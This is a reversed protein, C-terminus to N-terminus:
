AEIALLHKPEGGITLAAQHDDETLNKQDAQSILHVGPQRMMRGLAADVEKRSVGDLRRRVATLKVWAGPKRVARLYAARIQAEVDPWFV